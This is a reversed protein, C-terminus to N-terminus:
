HRGCTGAGETDSRCLETTMTWPTAHKVQCPHGSNRPGLLKMMMRMMMMMMMMTMMAMM